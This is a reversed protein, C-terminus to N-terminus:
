ASSWASRFSCGIGKPARPLELTAATRRGQGARGRGQAGSLWLERFICDLRLGQPYCSPSCRYASSGSRNLGRLCNLLMKRPSGQTPRHMVPCGGRGQTPSQPALCLHACSTGRLSGVQQGREEGVTPGPTERGPSKKMALIGTM